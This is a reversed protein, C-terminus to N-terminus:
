KLALSNNLLLPSYLFLVDDAEFDVLDGLMASQIYRIDVLTVKSYNEMMLPVLSGGFSDRFVILERQANAMPNEVVLLADSGSLFMEYPDRGYAAEMDYMHKEVPVGTDFSTVTCSDLIDSTM